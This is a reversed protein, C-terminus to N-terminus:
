TRDLSKIELIEWGPGVEILVQREIEHVTASRVKIRRTRTGQTQKVRVAFLPLSEPDPTKPPPLPDRPRPLAGDEAPGREVAVGSQVREFRRLTSGSPKSSPPLESGRPRESELRAVLQQYRRPTRSIMIGLVPLHEGGTKSVRRKVSWVIGGVVIAGTRRHPFLKVVVGEGEMLFLPTAVALGGDSVDLVTGKARTKGQKIECPIRCGIRSGREM